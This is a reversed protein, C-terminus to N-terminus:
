KGSIMSFLIVELMLSESAMHGSYLTNAQVILFLLPAYHLWNIRKIKGKLVFYKGKAYAIM